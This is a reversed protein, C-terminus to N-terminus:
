EQCVSYGTARLLAWSFPWCCTITSPIFVFSDRKQLAGPMRNSSPFSLAKLSSGRSVGGSPGEGGREPAANTLGLAEVEQTVMLHVRSTQPERHGLFIGPGAEPLLEFLGLSPGQCMLFDQSNGEGQWPPWQWTLGWGQNEVQCKILAEQTDFLPVQMLPEWVESHVLIDRLELAGWGSYALGATLACLASM